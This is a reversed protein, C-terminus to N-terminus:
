IKKEGAYVKMKLGKELIEGAKVGSVTSHTASKIEGSALTDSV